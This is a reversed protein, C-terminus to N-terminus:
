KPMIKGITEAINTVMDKARDEIDKTNKVNYVESTPNKFIDTTSNILFKQTGDPDDSANAITRAFGLLSDAITAKFDYAERLKMTNRFESASFYIAYIAPFVLIIKIIIDSNLAILGIGSTAAISNTTATTFLESFIRASISTLFWISAGVGAIWGIAQIGLNRSKRRFAVNLKQGVDGESTKIYSSSNM